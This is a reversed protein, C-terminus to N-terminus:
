KEGGNQSEEDDEDVTQVLHSSCVPCVPTDDDQVFVNRNCTDCYASVVMPLLYGARQSSVVALRSARTDYVMSESCVEYAKAEGSAITM